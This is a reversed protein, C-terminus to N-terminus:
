AGLKVLQVDPHIRGLINTKPLEGRVMAIEDCAHLKPCLLCDKYLKDPIVERTVVRFDFKTFFSPVLTFLCVCTVQHHEAETLLAEMLLTGAGRHQQEVGVCISRVEALHPGYLHLGGCGLIVGDEEVVYFDRINECIDSLPRPLLTDSQSFSEVLHHIQEADPLIARRTHM